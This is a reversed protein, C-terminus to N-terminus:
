LSRQYSYSYRLGLRGDVTRAAADVIWLAPAATQCSELIVGVASGVGSVSPAPQLGMIWCGPTSGCTILFFIRYFASTFVLLGTLGLWFGAGAGSVLQLVTGDYLSFATALCALAMLLSCANDICQCLFVSKLPPAIPYAAVNM